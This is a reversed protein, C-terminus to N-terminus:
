RSNIKAYYRASLRHMVQAENFYRGGGNQDRTEPLETEAIVPVNRM